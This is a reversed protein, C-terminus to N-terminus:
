VVASDNAPRMHISKFFRSCNTWMAAAIIMWKSAQRVGEILHYIVTLSEYPKCNRRQLASQNLANIKASSFDMKFDYLCM